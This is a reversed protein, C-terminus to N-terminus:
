NKVSINKSVNRLIESVKIVCANLIMEVDGIGNLGAAGAHGGGDCSFELGLNQFFEGLHLGNEVVDSSARGSIRVHENHQAGVFAVDAGLNILKKCMSAEFSSLQSIVILYDNIQSYKLRQGGKLHAIRQSVKQDDNDEIIKFVDAMTTNSIKMLHSFNQFTDYTAYKFHGTDSLIAILLSLAVEKSINFNILELLELILEACSTKTDDCYYFDSDWVDNKLHHDIIIPNKLLDKSIGLQSPTSADLIVVSKYQGIDPSELIAINEFYKLIEKGKYSIKQYAGIDYNPFAKQMAIASGVADIDANHHLLIIGPETNLRQVIKYMLKENLM